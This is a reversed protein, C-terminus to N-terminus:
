RTAANQPGAYPWEGRETTFVCDLDFCIADKDLCNVVKWSGDPQRTLISWVHQRLLSCYRPQYRFEVSTAEKRMREELAKVGM